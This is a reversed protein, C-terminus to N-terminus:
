KRRVEFSRTTATWDESEDDEDEDAWGVRTKPGEYAAEFLKRLKSKSGSSRVGQQQLWRFDSENTSIFAKLAERGSERPFDDPVGTALKREGMGVRLTKGAEILESTSKPPYLLKM